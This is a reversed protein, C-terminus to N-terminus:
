RWKLRGGESPDRDVSQDISSEAHDSEIKNRDSQTLDGLVRLIM